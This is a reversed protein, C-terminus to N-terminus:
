KTLTKIESLEKVLVSDLVEAIYRMDDSTPYNDESMIVNYASDANYVLKAVGRGDEDTITIESAYAERM